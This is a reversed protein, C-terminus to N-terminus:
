TSKTRTATTGNDTVDQDIIPTTGNDDYVVDTTATVERSNLRAKRLLEISALETGLETRVADALDTATSAYDGTLVVGSTDLIAKLATLGDTANALDDKAATADTCTVAATVSAAAGVPLATTGFLFDFAAASYVQCVLRVPLAGAMTCDIILGGVTDTDAAILVINYVGSADHTGATTGGTGSKDVHATGGHKTLRVDANTITLGTEATKGDTDDLFPGISVEQSATNYRLPYAV